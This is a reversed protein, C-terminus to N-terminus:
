ACTQSQVFSEDKKQKGSHSYCKANGSAIYSHDLKEADEGINPTVVKNKKRKIKAMRICTYHYKMTNKILIERTALMTSCIKIYKNPM